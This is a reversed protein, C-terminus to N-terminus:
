ICHPRPCYFAQTDCVQRTRLERLEHDAPWADACAIHTWARSSGHVTVGFSALHATRIRLSGHVDLRNLRESSSTIGRLVTVSARVVQKSRDCPRAPGVLASDDCLFVQVLDAGLALHKAKLTDGARISAVFAFAVSDIANLEASQLEVPDPLRHWAACSVLCLGMAISFTLLRALASFPKV